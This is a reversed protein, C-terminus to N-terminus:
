FFPQIAGLGSFRSVFFGPVVVLAAFIVLAIITVWLAKKTKLGSVIPVGILILAVFGLTYIDLLGLIIRLLDLGGSQGATIFGSLGSAGILQRKSIVYIIQILYRLIFPSSAWAVLNQYVVQPQRSGIFTMLLYLVSGFIFWGLWLKILAGLLPFIYIFLPSQMAQQGEFFQNQQEESWYQFDEPPQNISMQADMLRAPGAVISFILVLATLVLMPKLWVGKDISAIASFLKKPHLFVDLFWAWSGRELPKAITNNQDVSM